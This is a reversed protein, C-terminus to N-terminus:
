GKLLCGIWSVCSHFGRNSKRYTERSEVRSPLKPFIRTLHSSSCACGSVEIDNFRKMMTLLKKSWPSKKLCRLGLILVVFVPQSNKEFFLMSKNQLQVPRGSLFSTKQHSSAPSLLLQDCDFMLLLSLHETRMKQTMSRDAPPNPRLFNKKAISQRIERSIMTLFHNITSMVQLAVGDFILKNLVPCIPLPLFQGYTM